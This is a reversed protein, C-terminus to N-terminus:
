ARVTDEDIELVERAVDAEVVVDERIKERTVRVREYAVTEVAVREEHLTIERPKRLGKAGTLTEPDDDLEIIELVERRLPVTVTTEETIVKVRLRVAKARVKETDAVVREEHLVIAEGDAHRMSTEGHATTRDHQDRAGFSAETKDHAM